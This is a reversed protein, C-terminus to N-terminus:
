RRSGGRPQLRVRAVAYQDAAPTVYRLLLAAGSRDRGLLGAQIEARGLPVLTGGAGFGAVILTGGEVLDTGEKADYAAVQMAVSASDLAVLSVLNRNGDLVSTGDPRHSRGGNRSVLQKTTTLPQVPDVPASALRRGRYDFAWVSDGGMLAAFVVGDAGDAIAGTNMLVQPNRGLYKSLNMFRSVVSGDPRVLALLDGSSGGAVAAITLFLSDDVTRVWLPVPLTRPVELARAFRGDPAFLSVRTDALDYGMVSDRFVEATSLSSFEGPGRGARGVTLLRRGDRAYVKIDKDSRDGIYFRGDSGVSLREPRALVPRGADDLRVLDEVIISRAAPARGTPGRADGCATLGLASAALLFTRWRTRHM